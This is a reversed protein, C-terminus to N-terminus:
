KMHYEAEPKTLVCYIVDREREKKRGSSYCYAPLVFEKKKWPTYSSSSSSLSLTVLYLGVLYYFITRDTYEIEFADRAIIEHTQTHYVYSLMHTYVIGCVYLNINNNHQYLM